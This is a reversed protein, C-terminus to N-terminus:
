SSKRPGFIEQVHFTSLKVISSVHEEIKKSPQCCDLCTQVLAYLSFLLREEFALPRNANGVCIARASAIRIRRSFLFFLPQNRVGKGWAGKSAKSPKSPKSASAKAGKFKGGSQPRQALRQIYPRPLSGRGYGCLSAEMCSERMPPKSARSPPKLPKLAELPKFHLTLTNSAKSRGRLAM